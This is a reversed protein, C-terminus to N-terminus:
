SVPRMSLMGRQSSQWAAICYSVPRMSLVDCLLSRHWATNVATEAVSASCCPLFSFRGHRVYSYGRRKQRPLCPANQLSLIRLRGCVSSPSSSPLPNWWDMVILLFVTDRTVTERGIPAMTTTEESVFYWLKLLRLLLVLFGRRDICLRQGRTM